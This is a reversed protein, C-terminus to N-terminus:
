RRSLGRAPLAAGEHRAQRLPLRARAYRRPNPSLNPQRLLEVLHLLAREVLLIPHDGLRLMVTPEGPVGPLPVLVTSAEDITREAEDFDGISRLTTVLWRWAHPYSPQQRVASELARIAQDTNGLRFLARGAVAKRRWEDPGSAGALEL